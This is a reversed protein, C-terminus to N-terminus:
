KKKELYKAYWKNFMNPRTIYEPTLYDVNHDNKGRLYDNFSAESVALLIEEPRIGSDLLSFLQQETKSDLIRIKRDTIKNFGALFRKKIEKKSFGYYIKEKTNTKKKRKYTQNQKGSKTQNYKGGLLSKSVLKTKSVVWSDVDTNVKYRPPKTKSVVLINANSLRKVEKGVSYRSLQTAQQFQSFSIWDDTKRWGNTKRIVTCIIRYAAGSLEAMALSELVDNPIQTYDKM